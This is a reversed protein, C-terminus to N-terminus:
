RQKLYVYAFLVFWAPFIVYGAYDHVKWMADKGYHYGALMIIVLRLINQFVTGIIGFSFMLMAKRAPLRYDLMMLAFIVIFIGISVSGASPTSIFASITEGLKSSFTVIRGQTNFEYGLAHMVTSVIWTTALSYRPELFRQVFLPFTLSFGYISLLIAPLLATRGFFIFFLALSFLLFRSLLFPLESGPLVISMVLLTLGIPILRLEIEELMVEVIEGRKVYLWGFCLLLVAWPYAGQTQVYRWSFVRFERWLGFPLSALLTLALWLALKYRIQLLVTM